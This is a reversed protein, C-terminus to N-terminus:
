WHYELSGLISYTEGNNTNRLFEDLTQFGTGDVINVYFGYEDNYLDNLYDLKCYFQWCEKPNSGSFAELTLSEQIEKLTEAFADCQAQFYKEKAIVTLKGNEIKCSEHLFNALWNVDDEQDESIMVRDAIPFDYYDSADIKYGSQQEKKALEFIRSSTM